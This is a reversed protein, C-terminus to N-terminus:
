KCAEERKVFHQVPDFLYRRLFHLLQSLLKEIGLAHGHRHKSPQFSKAHAARIQCVLLRDSYSACFPCAIRLWIRWTGMKDTMVSRPRQAESFGLPGEGRPRAPPAEKWKRMRERCM